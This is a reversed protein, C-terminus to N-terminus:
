VLELARFIKRTKPTFRSLSIRLEHKKDIIGVEVKVFGYSEDENHRLNKFDDDEISIEFIFHDQGDVVVRKCEPRQHRTKAAIIGSLEEEEVERILAELPSEGDEIQGGALELGHDSKPSSPKRKESFIYYANARIFLKAIGTKKKKSVNCMVFHTSHQGLGDFLM